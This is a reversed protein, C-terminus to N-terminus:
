KTDAQRVAIRNNSVTNNNNQSVPGVICWGLRSHMNVKMELKCYKWHNLLKSM